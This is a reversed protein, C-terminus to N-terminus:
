VRCGGGAAGHAMVMVPGCVLICTVLTLGVVGVFLPMWLYRLRARRSEPPDTWRGAPPGDTAGPAARTATPRPTV